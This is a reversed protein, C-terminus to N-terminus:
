QFKVEYVPFNEDDYVEIREYSYEIAKFRNTNDGLGIFISCTRHANAIRSIASDMNADFQLIDRLLFYFPIGERSSTGNYALWVKQSLGM